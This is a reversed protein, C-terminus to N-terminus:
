SLHVCLAHVVDVAKVKIINAAIDITADRCADHCQRQCQGKAHRGTGARNGAKVAGDEDAQKSGQEAAGRCLYGARGARHGHHHGSNEGLIGAHEWPIRGLTRCDGKGHNDHAAGELDQETAQTQTLVDTHYRM